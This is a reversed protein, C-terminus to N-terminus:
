FDPFMTTLLWSGNHLKYVARVKNFTIFNSTNKPVGLGYPQSDSHIVVKTGNTNPANNFATTGPQTNQLARKVDNPSSFRSSYPPPTALTSGDPAIGTNARKILAEDSVDHGHRELTHADPHSTLKNLDSQSYGSVDPTRKYHYNDGNKYLQYGGDPNGMPTGSNGYKNPLIGGNKISAIEDANKTIKIVSGDLDAKLGANLADGVTDLYKRGYKVFKFGKRVVKGAKWVTKFVKGPPFFETILAVVGATIAFADANSTGEILDRFALTIGGGPIAEILLDALLPKFIGWLATWESASLPWGSENIQNKVEPYLDIFAAERAVMKQTAYDMADVDFGVAQLELYLNLGKMAMLFLEDDNILLEKPIASLSFALEETDSHKSLESAIVNIFRTLGPRDLGAPGGQIVEPLGSYGLDGEPTNLFDEPDNTFDTGSGAGGTGYFNNDLIDPDYYIPDSFNDNSDVDGTTPYGSGGGTVIPGNDNEQSATIVIEGGILPTCNFWVEAILEWTHADYIHGIDCILGYDEPRPGNLANSLNDLSVKIRGATLQTTGFLPREFDLIQSLAQLPQRQMMQTYTLNEYRNRDAIKLIEKGSAFKRYILLGTVTESSEPVFPVVFESAETDTSSNQGESNSAAKSRRQGQAATTYTYHGHDWLARGFKKSLAPILTNPDYNQSLLEIIRQVEKNDGAYSLYDAVSLDLESEIVLQNGPLDDGTQCGLFFLM